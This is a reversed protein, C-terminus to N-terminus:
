FRGSIWVSTPGLGVKPSADSKPAGPATVWLVVGGALAAAGVAFGVTSVAGYTRANGAADLGNPGCRLPSGTCDSKADSWSSITMIGFVSGIAVGALGVGGAVLALTKQTNWSSGTAAGGGDGPEFPPITVTATGSGERVDIETKWPKKGTASAELTHAGPDVPIPTGLLAEAVPEGDRKIVLGEERPASVVLRPVRRDVAAARELATRERDAQGAARAAEAAEKFMAWASAVKGIREYCEGLYLRVGVGAEIRLSEALKPCAEANRGEKMLKLGQEFLAEAVAKNGAGQARAAPAASVLAASLLLAAIPKRSTKSAAAIRDRVGTM